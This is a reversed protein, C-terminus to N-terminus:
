NNQNDIFSINIKNKKFSDTTKENQLNNMINENKKDAEISKRETNKQTFNNFAIDFKKSFDDYKDNDNVNFINKSKLRVKDYDLSKVISDIDDFPDENKIPKIKAYMIYEIDYKNDDNLNNKTNDTLKAMSKSRRPYNYKNINKQKNEEKKKIEKGKLNNKDNNRQTGVSKGVKRKDFKPKTIKRKLTEINQKNEINVKKKILTKQTITKTIGKKNTKYLSKNNRNRSINNIDEEIKYNKNLALKEMREKFRDLYKDYLNKYDKKDDKNKLSKGRSKKKEEDDNNITKLKAVTKERNFKNKRQEENNNIKNNKNIINKNKKHNIKIKNYNKIDKADEITKKNFNKNSNINNRSTLSKDNNEIKNKASNKDIAKLSLNLKNNNLKNLTPRNRSIKDDKTIYFTSTMKINNKKLLNNKYTINSKNLSINNTNNTSYETRNTLNFKHPKKINIMKQNLLKNAVRNVSTFNSSFTSGFLKSNDKTQIKKILKSKIPKKQFKKSINEDKEKKM